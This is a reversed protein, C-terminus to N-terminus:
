ISSKVLSRMYNSIKILNNIEVFDGVPTDVIKQLTAESINTVKFLKRRDCMDIFAKIDEISYIAQPHGM